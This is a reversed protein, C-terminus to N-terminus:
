GKTQGNGTGKGPWKKGTTIVMQLYEEIAQRDANADRESARKSEIRISKQRESEDGLSANKTAALMSKEGQPAKGGEDL